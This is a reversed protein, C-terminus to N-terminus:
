QADNGIGARVNARHQDESAESRHQRHKGYWFVDFVGYGSAEPDRTYFSLSHPPRAGCNAHLDRKLELILKRGPLAATIDARKDAVMHGKPEVIIGLPDLRTKLLGLLM